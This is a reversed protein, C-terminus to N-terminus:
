WMAPVVYVLLGVFLFVVAGLLGQSFDYRNLKLETKSILKSVVVSVFGFIPMMLIVGKVDIGQNIFKYFTMTSALLLGSILFPNTWGMWVAGLLGLVSIIFIGSNINNYLKIKELRDENIDEYINIYFEDQVFSDTIASNKLKIDSFEDVKGNILFVSLEALKERQSYILEKPLYSLRLQYTEQDDTLPVRIKSNSSFKYDPQTKYYEGLSTKQDFVINNISDYGGKLVVKSLEPEAGSVFVQDLTDGIIRFNSEEGEFDFQIDYNIVEKGLYDGISRQVKLNKIDLPDDFSIGSFSVPQNLEPDWLKERSVLPSIMSVLLGVFVLGLLVYNIIRKNM